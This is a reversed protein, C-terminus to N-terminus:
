DPKSLQQSVFIAKESRDELVKKETNKRESCLRAIKM